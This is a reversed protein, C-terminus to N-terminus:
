DHGSAANLVLSKLAQIFRPHSNLAPTVHYHPIGRARAIEAYTVGLEFLTEVHDSVFAIPYVLMQRVGAAAKERIV